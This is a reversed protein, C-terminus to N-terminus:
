GKIEIVCIIIIFCYFIYVCALTVNLHGQNWTITYWRCIESQVGSPVTMSDSDEDVPDVLDKLSVYFHGWTTDIFSGLPNDGHLSVKLKGEIENWPVFPSSSSKNPKKPTGNEGTTNDSPVDKASSTTTNTVALPQLLPYLFSVDSDENSACLSSGGSQLMSRCLKSRPWPDSVNHLMADKM